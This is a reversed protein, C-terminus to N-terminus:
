SVRLPHITVSLVLGWPTWAYPSRYIEGTMMDVWGGGKCRCAKHCAPLLGQLWRPLAVRSAALKGVQDLGGYGYLRASKPLSIKSDFKSMYRAWAKVCRCGEVWTSGWPWWKSLKVSDLVYGRPLWVLLHYHLHSARELVWSYPFTCGNRRLVRRVCDLFASIHKKSFAHKERYTLTLAVARLNAVKAYRQQEKIVCKLKKRAANKRRRSALSPCTEIKNVLESFQVVSAASVGLKGLPRSSSSSSM